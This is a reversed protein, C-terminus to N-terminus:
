RFAYLWLKFNDTFEKFLCVCTDCLCSRVSIDSFLHLEFQMFFFAAFCVCVCVCVCVCTVDGLVCKGALITCWLEKFVCM